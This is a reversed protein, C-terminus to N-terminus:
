FVVRRLLPAGQLYLALNEAIMDLLQELQESGAGGVHPTLAVNDLLWFESDSRAPEEVLVDLGAGAIRRARCADILAPEDILDGRSVNIVIASRKLAALKARDVFGRMEPESPAAIVVVDAQRFGEIAEHRRYVREVAANPAFARSVATVRMGFAEAKHALAQGIAGMGIILITRGRLSVMDGFVADRRWARETRAAEIRRLQRTLFLLLAFAHESLNGARLGAVNTVAVHAPLNGRGLAGDLGSSTFQIWRLSSSAAAAAAIPAEYENGNVILIDAQRELGRAAEEADKAKVFEVEPFASELRSIDPNKSGVVYVAKAM